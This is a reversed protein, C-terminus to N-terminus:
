KHIFIEKEGAQAFIEGYIIKHNVLKYPLMVVVSYGDKHDLAFSIADSKIGTSPVVVKVDYILSTAIYEGSKASKRFGDNLLVMIEMSPPHEKKSQGSISVIEGNAKMAYGYPIFEGYQQLMKEAFPLAENMLKECDIKGNNGTSTFMLTTISIIITIISAMKYSGLMINLQSCIVIGEMSSRLLLM